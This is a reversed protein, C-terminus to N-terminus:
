KGAKRIYISGNFNTFHIEPGGGNITGYVAKDVRVRYKGGQGRSDEVVPQRTAPDLQIDFDSFIEGNDTKMVVKAKINEPFTVDVKGNMSSFSMTKGPTVQNFVVVVGGNLAHAVVSGSIGTLTVSGNLNNAEIDGQVREVKIDGSNVCGLKLSTRVPVQSILDVSRSHSSTGVEVVNNEEVVTLGTTAIQLRKMGETREASKESKKSRGSHTRAEVIVEKGDYATVTIGGHILHAKVQGPRSPDSFPVTVKDAAVEQGALFGSMLLLTLACYLVRLLHQM